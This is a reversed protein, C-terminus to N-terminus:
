KYKGNYKRIVENTLDLHPKAFLLRSEAVELILTHVSALAHGNPSRFPGLWDISALNEVTAEPIVFRIDPAELEQVRTIRVDGVQWRLLEKM